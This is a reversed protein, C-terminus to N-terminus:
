SSEIKGSQFPTFAEPFQPDIKFERRLFDWLRVHELYKIANDIDIWRKSSITCIVSVLQWVLVKPFENQLTTM